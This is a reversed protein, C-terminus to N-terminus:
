FVFRTILLVLGRSQVIICACSMHLSMCSPSRRSTWYVGSRSRVEYVSEGGTLM